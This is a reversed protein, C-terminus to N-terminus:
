SRLGKEVVSVTVHISDPNALSSSSITYERAKTTPIMQVFANLPIIVSQYDLLVDAISVFSATCLLSPSVVVNADFATQFYCCHGGIACFASRVFSTTVM